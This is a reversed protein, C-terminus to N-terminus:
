FCDVKLDINKYYTGFSNRMGDHTIRIPASAGELAIEIVVKRPFRVFAVVAGHNRDVFIHLEEGPKRENWASVSWVGVGLRGSRRIKFYPSTGSFKVGWVERSGKEKAFRIKVFMAESKRNWECGTFIGIACLILLMLFVKSMCMFSDRVAHMASHLM